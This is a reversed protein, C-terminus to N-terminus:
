CIVELKILEIIPNITEIIAKDNYGKKRLHILLTKWDNKSFGLGFRNITSQNIGRRMFYEKAETNNRLNAFFFRAADTNIKYM